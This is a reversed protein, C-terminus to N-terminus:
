PSTDASAAPNDGREESERMEGEPVLGVMERFAIAAEVGIRGLM